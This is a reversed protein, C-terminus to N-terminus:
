INFCKVALYKVSSYVVGPISKQRLHIKLENKASCLRYLRPIKSRTQSWGRCHYAYINPNFILKWGKKRLRISLDIDEKYMYFQEDFVERNRILISDLAEKRCFFVAGCIAPIEEIAQFLKSDIVKGKARDIWKGYWVPFIGTSDYKGTPLDLSIDYGYTTGTIAGCKQNLPSDLYSSAQEIFTEGAFADPNLFFVYKSAPNLHEYGLNNGACFGCEPEGFVVKIPFDYSLNQIYDTNTSGSDILIVEKPKLTQRQLADLSKALFPESNHTVLIVSCNSVKKM